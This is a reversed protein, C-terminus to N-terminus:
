FYFSSSTSLMRLTDQADTFAFDGSGLCRRRLGTVRLATAVDARHPAAKWNTVIGELDRGCFIGLVAGPSHGEPFSISCANIRQCLGDRKRAV